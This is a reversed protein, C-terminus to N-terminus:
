RNGGPNHPRLVKSDSSQMARALSALGGAIFVIGAPMWMILGGLQQDELASLGWQSTTLLYPTYWVVPSFTLLAGLLSAHIATTFLYLVGASTSEHRSRFLAFWFVMAVWLFSTHQLAHVWSNQLGTNFLSPLHWGWLGIAHIFWAVAPSSIWDWVYRASKNRALKGFARGFPTAMGRLLASVPQSIVLLPAAVLMMLEHQVMHASFLYEGMPDLPSALAIALASWGIWFYYQRQRFVAARTRFRQCGRWYIWATILLLSIAFPDIKWPNFQMHRDFPAGLHAWAPSSFLVPLLSLFLFYRYNTLSM